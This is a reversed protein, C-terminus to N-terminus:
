KNKFSAEIQQSLWSSLNKLQGLAEELAVFQKTLRDREKELLREQHEIQRQLAERQRDLSDEKAKILGTFPDLLGQLYDRLTTAMQQFFQAAAEPDEQVMAKLREGEFELTGDGKLSVGYFALFNKGEPLGDFKQLLLGGLRGQIGRLTFDGMLPKEEGEAYTFQDKIFSAVQNYAEVLAELKSTMVELDRKVEVRIIASPDASFLRLTLGGILDKIENTPRSVELGNVELVADQAQVVTQFGFSFPEGLRQLGEELVTFAAQSGTATTELLLRYDGEAVKVVLARVGAQAQNVKDAIALISEEGTLLVEVGNIRLTGTIGLAEASSPLGTGSAKVEGQATQLVRIRYSGEKAFRSATVSLIAGPDGRNSSLDVSFARFADGFYFPDLAAKLSSLRNRLEGWLTIREEFGAKRQELPEVRQKRYVEVLQEVVQDWHLSSALGSIYQTPGTSM